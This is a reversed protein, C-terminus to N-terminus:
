NIELLSKTEIYKYLPSMNIYHNFRSIYINKHNKRPFSGVAVKKRFYSGCILFSRSAKSKEKILSFVFFFAFTPVLLFFNYYIVSGIFPWVSSWFFFDIGCLKRIFCFTFSSYFLKKKFFAPAICNSTNYLFRLHTNTYKM